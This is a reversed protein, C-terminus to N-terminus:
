KKNEPHHRFQSTHQETVDVKGSHECRWLYIRISLYSVIFILVLTACAISFEREM